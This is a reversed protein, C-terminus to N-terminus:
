PRFPGRYRSKGLGLALYFIGPFFWLGLTFGFGKGYARALKYSTVLPLIWWGVVPILTLLVFFGSGWAIRYLVVDRYIPIFTAWGHQGAKSFVRWCGVVALIAMVLSFVAALISLLGSSDAPLYPSILKEISELYENM